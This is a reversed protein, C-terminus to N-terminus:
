KELVGGLSVADTLLIFSMLSPFTHQHNVTGGFTEFDLNFTDFKGQNDLVNARDDMVTAVKTDCSHSKKIEHQRDSLLKHEDLNAM